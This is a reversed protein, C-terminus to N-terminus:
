EFSVSISSSSQDSQKNCILYISDPFDANSPEGDNQMRENAKIFQKAWDTLVTFIILVLDQVFIACINGIWLGKVGKHRVFGLLISSPIGIAYYSSLCVLAGMKQRGCGRITGEAVITSTAVFVALKATKPNGSGLENSAITSIAASIGLSIVYVLSSTNQSISMLSTQLEYAFLSPIMWRVFSQASMSIHPVQHLLNLFRGSFALILALPVSALLAFLSSSLERQEKCTFGSM